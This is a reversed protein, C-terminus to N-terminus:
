NYLIIYINQILQNLDLAFYGMHGANAPDHKSGGEDLHLSFDICSNSLLFASFPLVRDPLM